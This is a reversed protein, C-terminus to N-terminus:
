SRADPGCYGPTLMPERWTRAQDRSRWVQGDPSIGWFGLRSSSGATAAQLAHFDGVAFLGTPTAVLWWGQTSGLGHVHV